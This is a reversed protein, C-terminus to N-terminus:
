KYGGSNTLKSERWIWCGSYKVKIRITSASEISVSRQNTQRTKDCFYRYIVRFNEWFSVLNDHLSNWERKNTRALRMMLLPIHEGDPSTVEKTPNYTRKPKSRLPAVPILEPFSNTWDGLIPQDGTRKESIYLINSIYNAATIESETLESNERFRKNGVFNLYFPWMEDLPYESQFEFNPGSIIMGSDDNGKRLILFQGGGFDYQVSYVTPQGSEELFTIRIFYPRIGKDESPVISFGFRFKDILGTRGLQLRVIDRFSGMLFPERNFDLTYGPSRFGSLLRHLVSYCGLFTTKGTSNEGVLLTIPRLRVRQEGRFCRVDELIFEDLIDM